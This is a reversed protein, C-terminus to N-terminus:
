VTNIQQHLELLVFDRRGESDTFPTQKPPTSILLFEAAGGSFVARCFGLENEEELRADAGGDAAGISISLPFPM